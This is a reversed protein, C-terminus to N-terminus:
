RLERACSRCVILAPVFRTVMVMDSIPKHKECRRCLFTIERTGPKKERAARTSKGAM